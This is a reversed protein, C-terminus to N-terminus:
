MFPVNNKFVVGEQTMANNGAVGHDLTGKVVIYM